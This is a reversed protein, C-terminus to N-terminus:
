ISRFFFQKSYDMSLQQKLIPQPLLLKSTLGQSCFEQSLNHRKPKWHVTTANKTECKLYCKM